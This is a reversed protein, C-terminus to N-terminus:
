IVEPCPCLAKHSYLICSLVPNFDFLFVYVFLVYSQIIKRHYPLLLPLFRFSIHILFMNFLAKAKQRIRATTETIVAQPSLSSFLPSVPAAPVSLMTIVPEDDAAPSTLASPLSKLSSYLSLYGSKSNLIVSSSEPLAMSATREPLASIPSTDLATVSSSFDSTSSTSTKAM